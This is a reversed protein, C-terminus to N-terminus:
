LQQVLSSYFFHLLIPTFRYPVFLIGKISPIKKFSYTLSGQFCYHVSLALFLLEETFREKLTLSKLAETYTISFLLIAMFLSLYLAISQLM